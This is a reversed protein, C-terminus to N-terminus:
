LLGKLVEDYLQQATAEGLAYSSKLRGPFLPSPRPHKTTAISVALRFLTTVLWVSPFVSFELPSAVYLAVLLLVVGIVLAEVRLM